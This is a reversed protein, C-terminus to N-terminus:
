KESAPMSSNWIDRYLKWAGNEQKWIVIYKGQDIMQGEGNDLTYRGVEIATDGHSEVEVSELKAGKIGEM